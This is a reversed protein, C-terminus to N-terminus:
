IRYGWIMRKVLPLLDWGVELVGLSGSRMMNKETFKTFGDPKKYPTYLMFPVPDDTHGKASPPTAHDSTVLIANYNLDIKDLLPKIFYRDIDEIAKVKAELDGDHGPEDPGKLHIYVGDAMELLSLTKDVRIPYDKDKYPTPPSVEAMALALLNAVGKEVPMEVVAGMKFGHLHKFLPLNSPRMGADRLLITNCPFKGRKEREKNLPHNVLHDTVKKTLINVLEATMRSGEKNDLSYAKKIYLDFTKLAHSLRRHRLYAPDTNSVNDSLKYKSSGIVVAVRYGVGVYIKAYGEFKELDIHSIDEILKSSEETSIDRGCRRDVLKDSNTDLTALNGRFAVERDPVMSKGLGYVEIPGRGVYYKNPDYGLLSFVAADSEPAVGRGLVYMMGGVSLKALDDLAPTDALEYSTEKDKISDAAGDLVIYILRPVSYAEILFIM